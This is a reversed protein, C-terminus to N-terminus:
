PIPDQKQSHTFAVEWAKKVGELADMDTYLGPEHKANVDMFSIVANAGRVNEARLHCVKAMQDNRKSKDLETVHQVFTALDLSIKYVDAEFQKEISEKDLKLVQNQAEKLVHAPNETQRLHDGWISLDQPTIDALRITCLKDAESTYDRLAPTM